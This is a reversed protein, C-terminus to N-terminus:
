VTAMKSNVLGWSSVLEIRYGVIELFTHRSFVKFMTKHGTLAMDSSSMHM